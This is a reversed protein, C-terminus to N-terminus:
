LTQYHLALRMAWVNNLNPHLERGVQRAMMLINRVHALHDADAKWWDFCPPCLERYNKDYLWTYVLESKKGCRACKHM